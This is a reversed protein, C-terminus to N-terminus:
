ASLYFLILMNIILFKVFQNVSDALKTVSAKGAPALVKAFSIEAAVLNLLHFTEVVYGIHM